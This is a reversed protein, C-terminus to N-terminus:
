IDFQHGRLYYEISALSSTLTLLTTGPVVSGGRDRSRGRFHASVPAPGLLSCLGAVSKSLRRSTGVKTSQSNILVINYIRM